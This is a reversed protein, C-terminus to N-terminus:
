RRRGSRKKKKRPPPPAPCGQPHRHRRGGERARARVQDPRPAARESAAARPATRNPNPRRHGAAAPDLGVTEAAQRDPAASCAGAGSVRDNEEDVFQQGMTWVNTTIWYVLLGAPFNIVIVVFFLPLVLMLRRQTQDMMPSSM